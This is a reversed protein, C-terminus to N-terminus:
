GAPKAVIYAKWPLAALGSIEPYGSAMNLLKYGAQSFSEWAIQASEPGHLELLVVPRLERLVRQMGPIALVEGGEIDMKIVQPAPHEGEFVIWDLSVGRVPIAQNGNARKFERGASGQVKGTGGSPGPIFLLDGSRDAVANPLPVVRSDFHNLKINTRLRELNAPLAEFAFVKGSEGVQKAFLMTMYGINAGVDYIAMDPRVWDLIAQQLEPEYTGLWYDKEQQLDLIMSYGALGGAAITVQTLGEPAARNLGKRIMGALPGSHYLAKKVPLPLLRAVSAAFSLFLNSM